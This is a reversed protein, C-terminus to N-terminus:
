TSSFGISYGCRGPTIGDIDALRITNTADSGSRGCYRCCVGIRRGSWTGLAPRLSQRGLRRHTRRDPYRRTCCGSSTGDSAWANCTRCFAADHQQYHKHADFRGCWDVGFLRCVVLLRAVARRTYMWYRFWCRRSILFRIPTQRSWALLAGSITGVAMISLLGFGNADSHFIKVAMTSIFIPFNLGFTGILFLMIMIARPDAHGAFM